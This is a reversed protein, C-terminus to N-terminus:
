VTMIHNLVYDEKMNFKKCIDKVILEDELDNAKLFDRRAVAENIVNQEVCVPNNKAVGLYCFNSSKKPSYQM